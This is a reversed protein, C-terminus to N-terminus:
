EAKIGADRIVKGWKGIETRIYAAFEEPTGRGPESGFGAFQDKIEPKQLIKAIEGNLRSVIAQPTGAPALVGFWAMAEFGPLGSEAMTPVEPLAPTRTRGTVALGRLKGTKVFPQAPVISSLVLSTQGGLLDALAPTAGKYPIHVIDIGTITKFLEM